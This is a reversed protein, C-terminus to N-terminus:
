RSAMFAEAQVKLGDVVFSHAEYEELPRTREEDYIDLIRQYHETAEEYDGVEETVLAAAVLGLLHNPDSEVIQLANDHAAAYNGAIRNLTSLHYLGDHNLPEARLYAGIAMPMFQQAVLSDGNEVATMVRTFLRDAAEIPTMSTLDPPSGSGGQPAAVPGTPSPVVGPGPRVMQLGVMFILAFMAAGAIWWPLNQGGVTEAAAARVEDRGAGPLASGKRSSAGNAGTGAGAGKGLAGGCESCFKAKGETASGCHNCFRGGLASGCQQCFNGSADSGCQPCKVGKTM